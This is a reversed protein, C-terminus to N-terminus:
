ISFPNKFLKILYTKTLIKMFLFVQKCIIELIVLLKLFNSISYFIFSREKFNFRKQFHKIFNFVKFTELKLNKDYFLKM